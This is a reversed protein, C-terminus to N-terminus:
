CQRTLDAPFPASTVTSCVPFWIIRPQLPMKRMATEPVREMARDEGCRLLEAGPSPGFEAM